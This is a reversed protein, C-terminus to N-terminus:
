SATATARVPAQTATFSSTTSSRTWLAGASSTWTWRTQWILCLRRAHLICIPNEFTRPLTAAKSHGRWRVKKVPHLGVMDLLEQFAPTKKARQVWISGAVDSVAAVPKFEGLAAMGDSLHQLASRMLSAPMQTAAPHLICVLAHGAALAHKAKASSMGAKSRAAALLVKAQKLATVSAALHAVPHVADGAAAPPEQDSQQTATIAPQTSM